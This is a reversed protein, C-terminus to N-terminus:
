TEMSRSELGIVILRLPKKGPQKTNGTTDGNAICHYQRGRILVADGPRLPRAIVPSGEIPRHYLKGEGAIVYLIEDIDPHTQMGSSAGPMLSTDHVFVLAQDKVLGERTDGLSSPPGYESFLWRVIAEGQGRWAESMESAPILPSYRVRKIHTARKYIVGATSLHPTDIDYPAYNINSWTGLKHFDEAPIPAPEYPRAGAEPPTKERWELAKGCPSSPLPPM